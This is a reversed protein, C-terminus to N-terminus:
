FHGSFMLIEIEPRLLSTSHSFTLIQHKKLDFREIEFLYLYTKKIKTANKREQSSKQDRCGKLILPNEM